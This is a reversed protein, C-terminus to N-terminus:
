HRAMELSRSATGDKEGINAIWRILVISRMSPIPRKEPKTLPEIIWTASRKNVTKYTMAYTM